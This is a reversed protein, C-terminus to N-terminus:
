RKYKRIEGPSEIIFGSVISETPKSSRNEVLLLKARWHVNSLTELHKQNDRSSPFIDNSSTDPLYLGPVSSFMRCHM